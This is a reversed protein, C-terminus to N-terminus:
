LQAREWIDGFLLEDTLEALRPAADGFSKRATTPAPKSAM